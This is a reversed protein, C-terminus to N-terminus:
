APVAERLSAFMNASPDAERRAGGPFSAAGIWPEAPDLPRSIDIVVRREAILWAGGRREFRDLYRGAVFVHGSSGDDHSVTHYAIFYSECDAADGDVVIMANTIHHQGVMTSKDMAPVLYDGFERGRGTWGGHHDIADDHYVSAIMAADGRDVGRCYRFLAQQIEIHAVVDENTM